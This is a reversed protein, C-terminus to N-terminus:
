QNKGFNQLFFSVKDQPDRSNVGKINHKVRENAGNGGIMHNDYLYLQNVITKISM